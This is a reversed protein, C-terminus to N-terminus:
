FFFTLHVLLISSILMKVIVNNIDRKNITMWKMADELLRWECVLHLSITQVRQRLPMFNNFGSFQQKSAGPGCWM